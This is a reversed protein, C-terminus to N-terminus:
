SAYSRGDPALKKPRPAEFSPEHRKQFMFEGDRMASDRRPIPQSLGAVSSSICRAQGYILNRCLISSKSPVPSRTRCAGCRGPRCLEPYQPEFYLRHVESLLSKPADLKGDIFSSYFILKAREDTIQAQRWHEVQRQM